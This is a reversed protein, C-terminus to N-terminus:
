ILNFKNFYNIHEKSKFHSKKSIYTYKGGCRCNKEIKNDIIISKLNGNIFFWKKELKNLDFEYKNQNLTPNLDRIYIKEIEYLKKRNNDKIYDIIEFKWENFGGTKNIHNYLKNKVTSKKHEIIRRKLNITSGIYFNNDNEKYIKYIYM